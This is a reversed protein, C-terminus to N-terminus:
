ARHDARVSPTLTPISALIAPGRTTITFVYPADLRGGDMAAFDNAITIRYCVDPTPPERPVIRLTTPDRWQTRVTSRQSSACSASLDPTRELSGAVPRDFSITIVDGPRATDRGPCTPSRPPNNRPSPPPRRSVLSLLASVVTACRLRM